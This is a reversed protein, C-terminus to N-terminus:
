KVNNKALWAKMEAIEKEQAAIIDQSLKRIEPDKGKALQVQAMDIAAQHHPIMMKVFDADVSGASTMPMDKQMRTMSAVLGADMGVHNMGAHNAGHDMAGHNMNQASAAGTLALALCCILASTKLM